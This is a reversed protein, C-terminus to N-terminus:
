PIFGGAPNWAIEQLFIGLASKSLPYLPTIDYISIIARM